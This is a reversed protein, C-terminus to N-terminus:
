KKLKNLLESKSLEYAKIKKQRLEEKSIVKM